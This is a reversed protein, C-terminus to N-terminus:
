KVLQPKLKKAKFVIPKENKQAEDSKIYADPLPLNQKKLKTKTKNLNADAYM